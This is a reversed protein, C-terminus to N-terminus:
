HLIIPPSPIKNSFHNQNGYSPQAPYLPNPNHSGGLGETANIYGIGARMNIAYKLSADSQGGWVTYNQLDENPYRARWYRKHNVFLTSFGRDIVWHPLNPVHCKFTQV